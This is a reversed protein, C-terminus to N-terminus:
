TNEVPYIMYTNYSFLCQLFRIMLEYIYCVSFINYQISFYFICNTLGEWGGGGWSRLSILILDILVRISDALRGKPAPFPSITCQLGTIGIRIRLRGFKGDVFYTYIYLTGCHIDGRRFQSEGLGERALSPAGGGLVPPLPPVRRRTLPQPLGLESSKLFLNASQRSQTAM